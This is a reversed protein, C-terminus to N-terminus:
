CYEEDEDYEALMFETNRKDVGIYSLPDFGPFYTGTGYGLKNYQKRNKTNHKWNRTIRKGM